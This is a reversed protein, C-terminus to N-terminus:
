MPLTLANSCSSDGSIFFLSGVGDFLWSCFSLFTCILSVWFIAKVFLLFLVLFSDWVFLFTVLEFLEIFVVLLFKTTFLDFVLILDFLLHSFCNIFKSSMAVPFSLDVM